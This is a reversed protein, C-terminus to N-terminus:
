TRNDARNDATYQEAGTSRQGRACARGEVTQRDDPELHGAGFRHLSTAQAVVVAM